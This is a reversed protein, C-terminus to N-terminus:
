PKSMNALNPSFKGLQNTMGLFRRIDGVCTPTKLKLIASVKDSDPRVGAQDVIQGLFKVRDGHVCM